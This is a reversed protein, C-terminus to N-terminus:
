LGIEEFTRYVVDWAHNTKVYAQGKEVMAACDEPHDLLYDIKEAIAEYSNEIILERGSIVDLSEAGVDNTIVPVGIAMAEVIKTKIGTGYTIPAVFLNMSKVTDRLNDVFGLVKVRNCSISKKLGEPCKGIIYLTVPHRTRPLIKECIKKVSDANTAVSCNGVFVISNPYDSIPSASCLYGVDAGMTLTKAVNTRHRDNFAESELRSIFTIADFKNRYELEYKELRKVEYDLILNKLKPSSLFRNVVGGFNESYYGAINGSRPCAIQRRYRKALDDDALLIKKVNSDVINAYPVLRVMDFMVVEPKIRQYSNGFRRQVSKNYFLSTQLPFKKKFFTNKLVSYVQIVKSPLPIYEVSEIFEPKPLANTGDSFCIVHIDYGYKDHLGKCCHYLVVNHGSDTPWFCRTAFFLLKKM